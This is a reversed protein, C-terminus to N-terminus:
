DGETKEAIGKAWQEIRSEKKGCEVRSLENWATKQIGFENMESKRM